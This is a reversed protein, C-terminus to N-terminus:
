AELVNLAGCEACAIFLKPRKGEPAMVLLVECHGCVHLHDAGGLYIVPPASLPRAGEEAAAVVQLKITSRRVPRWQM